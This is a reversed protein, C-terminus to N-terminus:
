SFERDGSRQKRSVVHSAYLSILARAMAETSYHQLAFQRAREGTLKRIDPDDLLERLATAISAVEPAVVRGANADKVEPAIGVGKALICPIGALMAEVVAIGFNESFSPLVFVDADAFVKTKAEGDVHGLWEIRGNLALAEARGQLHSVYEAPGSGAIRLRVNPRKKAIDSFAELLGEINKKRDLRSLYLVTLTSGDRVYRKEHNQGNASTPQEVGLPIVVGNFTLGLAKMEELEAVSTCHVSEANRLLPKELFILSLRKLLPRRKRFGYSALTGLPRIIYPVGRVRAVVGAAISSFSFM